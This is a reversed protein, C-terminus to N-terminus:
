SSQSLHKKREIARLKVFVARTFAVDTQLLREPENGEFCILSGRQVQVPIYQM